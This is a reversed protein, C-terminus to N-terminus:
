RKKTSPSLCSPPPRWSASCPPPHAAADPFAPTLFHSSNGMSGPQSPSSALLTHGKLGCRNALLLLRHKFRSHFAYAFMHLAPEPWMGMRGGGRGQASGEQRSQALAHDHRPLARPPSPPPKHATLMGASRTDQPSCAEVRPVPCPPLVAFQLAPSSMCGVQSSSTEWARGVDAVLPCCQRTLLNWVNSM